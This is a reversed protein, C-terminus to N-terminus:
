SWRPDDGLVMPLVKIPWSFFKSKSNQIQHKFFFLNQLRIKSRVQGNKMPIQSLIGWFLRVSPRFFHCVESTDWILQNNAILSSIKLSLPRFVWHLSFIFKKKNILSISLHNELVFGVPIPGPLSFPQLFFHGPM